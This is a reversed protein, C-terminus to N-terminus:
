NPYYLPPTMESPVYPPLWFGTQRKFQRPVGQPWWALWGTPDSSVSFSKASEGIANVAAVAYEYAPGGPPTLANDARGPMYAPATLGEAHDEFTREGGHYILTWTSQGVTRRYLRYESTGLIEGWTLRALKASTEIALGDPAVPAKDTVYVPYEDGAVSVGDANVADVRVHVKTGARLGGLTGPSTTVTTATKWTAGSDSSVELRYSKAGQVTGFFVDAMGKGNVTRLVVPPLPIPAGKTMEWSHRGETLHVEISDGQRTQEAKAGDIYVVLAAETAAPVGLVLETATKSQYVGKLGVNADLHASIGAESGSPLQLKFGKAAILEGQFMSLDTAGNAFSRIIGAKGLFEEDKAQYRIPEFSRFVRDHSTATKVFWVGPNKEPDFGRDWAYQSVGAPFALPTSHMKEMEVSDKKATVLVISSGIADRVFGKSMRTTIEDWHDVRNRIPQLFV